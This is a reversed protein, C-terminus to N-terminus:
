KCYRFYQVRPKHYKRSTSLKSAFSAKLKLIADRISEDANVTTYERIPVMVEMVSKEDVAAPAKGLQCADEIKAALIDIDCPKTLYDYAGKALSEKASPLDAHGTLMIVPMKETAPNSKLERILAM